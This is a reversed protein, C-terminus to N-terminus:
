IIPQKVSQRQIEFILVLIYAVARLIPVILVTIIYTVKDVLVRLGIHRPDDWVTTYQFTASVTINNIM